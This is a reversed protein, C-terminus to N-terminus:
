ETLRFSASQICRLSEGEKVLYYLGAVDANFAMGDVHLQSPKYIVAWYGKKGVNCSLVQATSDNQVVRVVRKDFNRVDEKSCAPMLVYQYSKGQPKEGHNLFLTVVKGKVWDPQYMGMIDCWRGSREEAKTLCSDSNLVVYGISDHYLRVDTQSLKQTGQIAKWEKGELGYLEGRQLRQDITTGVVFASDSHIAAGICYVFRDSFLWAKYGTLGDRNLEMATMGYNGVTLGGVKNSNNGSKTKNINPFSKLNQYTTTGPIKYWDWLPFVNLYEDGRVYSYTAGDGLYYGKLNDENVLETGLVRNSAMKVSTMWNRTRHITYDSDDFHKHGILHNERACFGGIDLNEAALALSYAKHIQAQRFLQRDLSSVDMYRNWIIWKYGENIFSTLISRQEKSLEFATNKFLREYFSMGSVFALGYNGFQQQPGHQHFSWDNKIGEKRGLVIENVITNRATGALTADNQLLAKILVNGALWVKNQGTMGFKSHNMVEIASQKEKDSLQDELLIFAGGFTKPVGIENYWWNPCVPKTVFWFNLACHIAKKINSSHYFRTSPSYYLKSLELVRSAHKKPAWGSRLKDSYNIDSWSGDPQQLELYAEIKQLDFPYFLHLEEVMQDSIEKEPELKILDSILSDKGTNHPLLILRYNKKIQQLDTDTTQATSLQVLLGLTILSLIIRKM